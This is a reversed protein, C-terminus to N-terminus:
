GDRGAVAGGRDSRATPRDAESLWGCAGIPPSNATEADPSASVSWSLPMGDLCGVIPSLCVKGAPVRFGTVDTIWLENPGDAGFRHRGGGRRAAPEPAGRLGRERLLQLAAEEQRRPRGPGRGEHHRSRGSRRRRGRRRHAQPRMHRRRGRVGRRVAKRAAAREETEGKAQANGAYEYSSKAMGVVPLIECLRYEARLAEVM